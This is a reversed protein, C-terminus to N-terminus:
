FAQGLSVYVAIVPDGPQPNIPTGVDIRIPGFNSYYRLGLGTGFRLDSFDPFLDTYIAGADIFPVVGFNGFRYRAELAMEVLSRGGIPDNNADRPGISQYSYGRVSGGGGAYFRRSPAINERGAGPIAGLRLRGAFTLADNVALYASGDLQVRVYGFVDDQLSLEPSVLLSVRAGSTPDLLDGTGDYALGLPLAAIFFTRRQRLNTLLDVDREDSALLEAGASWIWRKQWLQNSIREFSATIGATRAAYADRSINGAYLQLALIQDRDLFNSRRYTIGAFQEDTGLIGRLGLAGEPPFFNRHEWSAEVRAGQGTGYGIEGAITRPPAPEMTVELDVREPDDSQVPEIGVRSVLGTQILARRLDEVMMASYLDGPDFRAITGVHDSGFIEDAGAVVRVGGFDREGGTTVPQTLRGSQIAHDVLVDEEGVEAFPFGRNALAAGLRAQATVVDFSDVPDEEYVPYEERLEARRDGAEELGPLEVSDFRYLPGTEIEFVVDVRGDETRGDFRLLIQPDYYGHARLLRRLLERDEDARRSIQAIVARDGQGARLLSLADFQSRIRSADDAAELGSLTVRYRQDATIAAAEALADTPRDSLAGMDPWEVGFDTPDSLTQALAGDDAGSQALAAAPGLM